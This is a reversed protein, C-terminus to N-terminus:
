LGKQYDGPIDRSFGRGVFMKCRWKAGGTKFNLRAPRKRTSTENSRSKHTPAEAWGYARSLM